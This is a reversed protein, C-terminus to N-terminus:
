KPFLHKSDPIPRARLPRGSEPFLLGHHKQQLVVAKRKQIPPPSSRAPAKWGFRLASVTTLFRPSPCLATDQGPFRLATRHGICRAAIASATRQSPVQVASRYKPSFITKHFAGGIAPRRMQKGTPPSQQENPRLLHNTGRRITKRPHKLPTSPCQTAQQHFELPTIAQQGPSSSHPIVTPHLRHPLPTPRNSRGQTVTRLDEIRSGALKKDGSKEGEGIRSSCAHSPANM